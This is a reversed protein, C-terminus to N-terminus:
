GFRCTRGIFIYNSPNTNGIIWTYCYTIYHVKGNRIPFSEKIEQLSEGKLEDSLLLFFVLHVQM